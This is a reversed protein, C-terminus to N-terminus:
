GKSTSQGHSRGAWNGRGRGSGKGWQKRSYGTATALQFKYPSRANGSSRSARLAEKIRGQADHFLFSPSPPLLSLPSKVIKGERSTCVHERQVNVWRNFCVKDPTLEFKELAEKGRFGVQGRSGAAVRGTSSDQQLTVEASDAYTEIVETERLFLLNSAGAENAFKVSALYLPDGGPEGQVGSLSEPLSSARYEAVERAFRNM